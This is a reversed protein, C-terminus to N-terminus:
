NSMNAYPDVTLFYVRATHDLLTISLTGDNDIEVNVALTEIRLLLPHCTVNKLTKLLGQQLSHLVKGGRTPSTQRNPMRETHFIKKIM